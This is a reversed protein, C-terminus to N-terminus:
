TLIHAPRPLEALVALISRWDNADRALAAAEDLCRDIDAAGTAERARQLWDFVTRTM